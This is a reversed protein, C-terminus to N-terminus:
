CIVRFASAGLVPSLGNATRILTASLRANNESEPSPMECEFRAAPVHCVWAAGSFGYLRQALYVVEAPTMSHALPTGRPQRNAIHEIRPERATPDADIFVVTEAQAIEYALEPTLQLVSRKILDRAPELLDLVRHAVGDDGRLPNGISISLVSVDGENLATSSTAARM